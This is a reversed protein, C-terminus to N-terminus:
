HKIMQIMQYGDASHRDNLFVSTITLSLITKNWFNMSVVMFLEHSLAFFFTCLMTSFSHKKKKHIFENENVRQIHWRHM